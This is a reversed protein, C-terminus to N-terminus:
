SRQRLVTPALLGGHADSAVGDTERVFLSEENDDLESDPHVIRFSPLEQFYERAYPSAPALYDSKPQNVEMQKIIEQYYRYSALHPVSALSYIIVKNQERKQKVAGPKTSLLEGKLRTFLLDIASL